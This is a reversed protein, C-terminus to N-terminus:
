KNNGLRVIAGTKPPRGPPIETAARTISSQHQGTKTVIWEVVQRQAASWKIDAETSSATVTPAPFARDLEELLEQSILRLNGTTIDSM